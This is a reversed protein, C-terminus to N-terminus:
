EQEEEEEESETNAEILDTQVQVQRNITKGTAQEIRQLLAEKRQNYFAKFDDTKMAESNILHTILIQDQRQENMGERDRLAKLYVSPANGGIIRNTRYSLATKNVISESYKAEVSNKLCWAHPFVHHIDISDAFYSQVEIPEGTRFDLCGDRMLLAYLGKYAASNRTRLTDFRNPSFNCETVTTPETGGKIWTMVEVVDRAFRTEVASGYLEGFVGCWYWRVLKSRVVDNDAGNGILTLITALPVVQTGYPLDRNSFIKQQFLFRGAKEFGSTSQEVWKKYDDLRLKLIDARKCSVGGGPEAKKRDYTFLLSISQLLEDAGVSQLIKQARIKDKRGQAIKQGRENHKGEWDERLNFGDAAFSATVLEFVTLSVGGTNVKEFVQCVAVKPTEKLLKIVPIQYQKFRDIVNKEFADFFETKQPDYNWFKNYNARWKACDLILPMPFLMYQYEAEPRSYDELVENRFNKVRKDEPLSKMAEERDGNSDVAKAMDIYYWRVIEKKRSDKTKVAKNTSIAQYLSTLRQQGDLIFREPEIALGLEVGEVPRPKFKVSPNGNELMMVAGIPYSLSVSALLSIIHDDDWVWGRQFEPLQYKGISIAKLVDQLSEKDSTFTTMGDM